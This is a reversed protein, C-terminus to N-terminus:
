RCRVLDKILHRTLDGNFYQIVTLLPLPVSRGLGCISTQQIAKGLEEVAPLLKDKWTASDVRRALLNTGLNALKQSGVRCPVCKGCSEDRFFETANIAQEAMDREEAGVKEAYVIIGAGLAETPSLDRFLNLELELDLIDLEQTSPDFGRRGALRGWAEKAKQNRLLAADAKLKAPLFGGSPGSPAVAKLKGSGAIGGCYVDILDRLTLGIPVEYVGPRKVDGSVSFYRRGHWPDRGQGAYGEGGNRLIYPVWAFTEVNSLLTPMDDLGNTAITPSLDRPEGRHDSMAEILATQEGCVYGGPSVFVSIPFPRGWVSQKTGCLGMEEARRIEEQCATIQESYEHRIYIFGETAGTVLGALIVAEVVLHPFRLLLERDKFTGPESEDGNVIVFAREDRGPRRAKAVQERVDRWKQAAPVGAGGMGRLGAADLEDFVAEARAVEEAQKRATRLGDRLQTVDADTPLHFKKKISEAEDDLEEAARRLNEESAAVIRKVEGYHDSRDKYPDIVWDDSPYRRDNRDLDNDAGAPLAKTAQCEAVISELGAIDRGLYYGERDAAGARTVSLCVAPARDCRGLCSVGEVRLDECELRTLAELTAQAKGLHCAMSRCVRVTVARAKELRFHPFFSAVEQIRYLPIDSRKSFGELEKRNLYGHQDQIQRLEPVIRLQRPSTSNPTM